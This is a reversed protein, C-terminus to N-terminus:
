AYVFTNRQRNQTIGECLINKAANFDANQEHGCSVCKFQSQSLRNEKAVHGCLNCTQSTYAPNVQIFEKNYLKSKYSLMGFFSSWSVDSIHKALYGFKIMNKVILKEAVVVSNQRIYKTSVKDLFDKRTNAIKAYLRILKKKQLERSKSGKKKRALSRNEIRLQREFSKFIHPNEVFCGDSDVLFYTIGMDLGVVQNENTPYLNEPEVESTVHLYYCNQKRVITANKIKGEPLRDKFTKVEGIKPLKFSSNSLKVEKFVISNYSDKKAWKPFGGGKFFKDYAQDLREIVNQLSHCPVDKIWEYAKLEPLQKMLDFKSLTINGSKYANIKTELALNYIFRCTNIWSDVRITQSNNLKLKYKYTKIFTM